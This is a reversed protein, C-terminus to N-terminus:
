VKLWCNIDEVRQLTDSDVFGFSQNQWLRYLYLSFLAQM